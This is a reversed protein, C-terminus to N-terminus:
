MTLIMSGISSITDQGPCVKTKAKEKCSVGQEQLCFDFRTQLKIPLPYNDLQFNEITARTVNRLSSKGFSNNSSAVLRVDTVKLEETIVYEITACGELSKKAADIPYMAPYINLGSIQGTGMLDNMAKLQPYKTDAVTLPENNKTTSSCAVLNLIVALAGVLM